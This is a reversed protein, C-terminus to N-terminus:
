KVSLKKIMKNSYDIGDNYQTKTYITKVKQWLKIAEDKSNMKERLLALGQYANALDGPHMNEIANYLELSTLYNIESEKLKGLKRLIDANHRLSHALRDPDNAKSYHEVSKNSHNIASEPNKCDMEINMYIHFIRGRAPHNDPSSVQLAKELIARSKNYQGAVRLNWAKELFIKLQNNIAM